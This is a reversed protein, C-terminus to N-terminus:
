DISIYNLNWTINELSKDESINKIYLFDAPNDLRSKRLFPFERKISNTNNYENTSTQISLLVSNCFRKVGKILILREHECTAMIDLIQTLKINRKTVGIFSAFGCISNQKYLILYNVQWLPNSYKWKWYMEDRAMEICKSSHFTKCFSILQTIIEDSLQSTYHILNYTHQYTVQNNSQFKFCFPLLNYFSIGIRIQKHAFAKSHFKNLHISSSKENSSLALFYKLDTTQYYCFAYNALKTGIGKRQYQPSIVADSFVAVPFIQNHFSYNNISFGRFGIVKNGDLAVFANCLQQGSPYKWKFVNTLLQPDLNNWLERELKIVQSLHLRENYKEFILEM